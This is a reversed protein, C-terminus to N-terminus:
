LTDAAPMWQCGSRPFWGNRVTFCFTEGLFDCSVKLEEWFAKDRSVGCGAAADWPRM